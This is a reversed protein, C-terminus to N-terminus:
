WRRVPLSQQMLILEGQYEEFAKTAEADNELTKWMKWIAGKVLPADGYVKSIMSEDTANSLDSLKKYYTYRISYNTDAIPRGIYVVPVDSTGSADKLAYYGPVGRADTLTWTLYIAEYSAKILRTTTGTYVYFVDPMFFDSELDYEYVTSSTNFTANALLFEFRISNIENQTQNIAETIKTNYESGVDTKNQIETQLSSLQSM